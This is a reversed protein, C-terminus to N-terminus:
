HEDCTQKANGKPRVRTECHQHWSGRLMKKQALPASALDTQRPALIAAPKKTSVPNALALLVLLVLEPTVPM